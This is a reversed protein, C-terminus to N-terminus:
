KHRRNSGSLKIVRSLSTVREMLRLGKLPSENSLTYHELLTETSENSTFWTCLNNEMRHNLIPMLIEDRFWASEKEAGIDDLVIIFARKLENVEDVYEGSNIKSKVRESFTPVHVFAVKKGENAWYNSACAALYTKGTGMDGWLYVSKANICLDQLQNLTSIYPIDEDDVNIKYFAITKMEESLDCSYYQKMHKTRSLHENMYKCDKFSEMLMGEFTLDMCKGKLNQRCDKLAKCNLCKTNCEVYRKFKNPYKYVLDLEIHNRMCVNLVLNNNVLTEALKSNDSVNVTLNMQKM